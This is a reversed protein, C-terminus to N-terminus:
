FWKKKKAILVLLGVLGVAVLIVYIYGWKWDFEPMYKFNMGYWGVLITLPFFITTLVTLYNMNRNAKLDLFTFYADTIHELDGAMSDVDVKLRTIRNILNSIQLLQDSEFLDNENTELEELVDLYQEYLNHMRSIQKKRRLTETNFDDSPRGKVVEEEMSAIEERLEEIIRVDKSMLENFLSLVLRELNMSKSSFRRVARSFVSKSSGDEDAVNVVVLLNNRLFLALDDDRTLDENDFVKLEFFTYRDYVEASTRYGGSAERCAAVTSDDFGFVDKLESLEEVTLYAATLVADDQRYECTESEKLEGDFRVFQM